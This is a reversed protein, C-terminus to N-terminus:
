LNMYNCLLLGLANSQNIDKLFHKLKARFVRAIIDDRCSLSVDHMALTENIEKWNPNATFTIFFDPISNMRRLIAMANQYKSRFYRPSEVFSRPLINLKKGLQKLTKNQQRALSISEYSDARCKKQNNIYWNMTNQQIKGWTATIFKQFLRQGYIFPNWQNKRELLRYRYYQTMTIKEGNSDKYDLDYACEGYPYLLPFALADSLTHCDLLTRNEDKKRTTLVLKRHSPVTDTIEGFKILTAIPSNETPKSFIKYHGLNTQDSVKTHLILKLQPLAHSGDFYQEFISKYMKVVWNHEHLLQQLEKILQRFKPENSIKGLFGQNLRNNTEEAPDWTYIQAQKPLVNSDPLLRPVTHYIAGSLIFTPPANRYSHPLEKRFIQSSSMALANNLMVINEQFYKSLRDNQTFLHHLEQPPNLIPKLTIKGNRCCMNWKDTKHDSLESKFLLAGCYPCEYNMKGIYNEKYKCLTEKFKDIGGNMKFKPHKYSTKEKKWYLKSIWQKSDWNHAVAAHRDIRSAMKKNYKRNKKYLLKKKRKRGRKRRPYWKGKASENISKCENDLQHVFEVDSADNSENHFQSDNQSDNEITKDSENDLVNTFDYDSENYSDDLSDDDFELLTRHLLQDDSCENYDFQCYSCHRGVAHNHNCRSNKHDDTSIPLQKDFHDPYKQEDEYDTDHHLDYQSDHHLDYPADRHWSDHNLMLNRYNEYNEEADNVLIENQNLRSHNSENQHSHSSNNIHIQENHTVNTASTLKPKKRSPQLDDDDSSTLDAEEKDRKRAGGLLSEEVIIEENHTLLLQALSLKSRETQTIHFSHNQIKIYFQDSPKYIIENSLKIFLNKITDQRHVILKHKIGYIVDIYLWGHELDNWKHYIKLMNNTIANQMDNYCNIFCLKNITIHTILYVLMQQFIYEILCTIVFSQFKPQVLQSSENHKIRIKNKRSGIINCPRIKFSLEVHKM